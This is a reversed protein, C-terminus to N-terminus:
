FATSLLYKYLPIVSIKIGDIDLTKEDDELTVILYNKVSYQEDKSLTVFSKTERTFDLPNLTYTVQIATSLSPLYFDIDIGTTSSKFYYLDNGCLRKLHTAVINELLLSDKNILFLNLIGNDYFYYRPTSERETFKSIYNKTTFLLFASEAHNIYSILADKSLKVGVSNVAKYLKTYSVESTITEAIKKMLIRLSQINRIGNRAAIDGLLVKNYVNEIYSRKDTFGITEPFGGNKLYNKAAARLQGNLSSTHLHALDNRLGIATIYELFSYTAIEKSLCRGGLTAEMESSLMKANSGTIYVKKKSDALRRAFKEWGEINQIEDLFYYPTNTTMEGATLVIDEFDSLTFDALRDDEFNIYIIQDWEVGSSILQQVKKYLLFSKGARRLGVLVYNAADELPYRREVINYTRILEHQDYIVAKINDHNM